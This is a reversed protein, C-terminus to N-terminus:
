EEGRAAKWEQYEEELDANILLKYCIKFKAKRILYEEDAETFGQLFMAALKNTEFRIEEFLLTKLDKMENLGKM